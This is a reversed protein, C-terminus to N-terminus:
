LTIITFFSNTSLYIQKAENEIEIYKQTNLIAHKTTGHTHIKSLTNLQM